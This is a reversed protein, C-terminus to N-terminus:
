RKKWHADAERLQDHDGIDFWRESFVFGYVPKRSSLWRIFEGLNDPKHHEAICQELLHIDERSFLYCATSALTTKPNEPKEEFGVIRQEPDIEVIGYKRAARQADGIDFIAVTTRGKARFFRELHRLSFEFLNDGAIVLIEDDIQAHRIAFDIDGIAGLRDDNSVTGDNVITLKRKTPFGAKWREFHPYFRANTVIYIEDIEPLEEIRFLIHDIMPRGAIPLLPKPIDKTLPYLRTSYGAALVIAKM